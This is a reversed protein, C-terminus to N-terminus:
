AYVGYLSFTSGIDFSGSNPYPTISTIANTSPYRGAAADVGNSSNTRSLLTKHKDVASYDQFQIIANFSFNTMIDGNGNLRMGNTGSYTASAYTSGSGQMRVSTYTAAADGNIRIYLETQVTGDVNCVLVLDGYNQPINSFTVSSSAAALTIQNLLIHTPTTKRAM